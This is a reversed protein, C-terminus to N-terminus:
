AHVHGNLGVGRKNKNIPNESCKGKHSILAGRSSQVDHCHPCNLSEPEFAELRTRLQVLEIMQSGNEAELETIRAHRQVLEGQAQNLKLKFDELLAPMEFWQKRELVKKHFLDSFVANLVAALTGVFLRQTIMYWTLEKGTNSSIFFLVIVGSCISMARPLWPAKGFHQSNATTILTTWEWAIAMGWSAVVMHWWVMDDPLVSAFLHHSYFTMFTIIMFQVLEVAGLSMVAEAVRDSLQKQNKDM